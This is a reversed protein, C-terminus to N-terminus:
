RAGGAPAAPPTLAQAGGSSGCRAASVRGAAVAARDCIGRCIAGTRLGPGASGQVLSTVHRHYGGPRSAGATVLVSGFLRLHFHVLPRSVSSLPSWVVDLEAVSVSPKFPLRTAVPILCRKFQELIFKLKFACDM